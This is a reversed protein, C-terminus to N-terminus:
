SMAIAVCIAVLWAAAGLAFLGALVRPALHFARVPNTAVGVLFLLVAFWVIAAVVWGVPDGILLGFVLLVVTSEVVILGSFLSRKRPSYRLWSTPLQRDFYADWLRFLGDLRTRVPGDPRLPPDSM